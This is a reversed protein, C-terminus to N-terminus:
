GQFLIRRDRAGDIAGPVNEAAGDEASQVVLINPNSKRYACRAPGSRRARLIFRRRRDTRFRLRCRRAACALRNLRYCSLPAPEPGRGLETFM